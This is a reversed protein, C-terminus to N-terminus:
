RSNVGNRTQVRLLKGEFLEQHISFRKSTLLEVTSAFNRTMLLHGFHDSYLHKLVATGNRGKDMIWITEEEFCRTGYFCKAVSSISQLSQQGDPICNNARPSIHRLETGDILQFISERSSSPSNYVFYPVTINSWM